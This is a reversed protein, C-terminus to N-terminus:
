NTALGQHFKVIRPLAENSKSHMWSLRLGRFNILKPPTIPAMVMLQVRVEALECHVRVQGM